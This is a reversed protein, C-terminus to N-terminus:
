FSQKSVPSISAGRGENNMNKGSFINDVGATIKHCKKDGRNCRLNNINLTM